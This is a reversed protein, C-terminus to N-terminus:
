KSSGFLRQYMRRARNEISTDGQQAARSIAARLGSKSVVWKGERKVKYPYKKEKSNLFASAPMAERKKTGQAPPNWAM